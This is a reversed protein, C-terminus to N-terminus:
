AHLDNHHLELTKRIRTLLLREELDVRFDAVAIEIAANFAAEREARTPLMDALGLIALDNQAYLIRAQDRVMEKLEAPSHHEFLKHRRIIADAAEIQRKDMARDVGTVAIIIRLVAEFFGGRSANHRAFVAERFKLLDDYEEEDERDKV